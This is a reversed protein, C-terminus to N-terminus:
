SSRHGSVQARESDEEDMLQNIEANALDPLTQGSVIHIVPLESRIRKPAPTHTTAEMMLGQEVYRRLLEKLKLGDQIARMKAERFLEDPIDITTRM